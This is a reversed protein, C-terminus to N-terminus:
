RAVPHSSEMTLPFLAICSLSSETQSSRKVLRGMFHNKIANM